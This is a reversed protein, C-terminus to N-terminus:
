VPSACTNKRHDVSSFSKLSAVDNLLLRHVNLDLLQKMTLKVDDKERRCENKM